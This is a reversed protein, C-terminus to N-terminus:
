FLDCRSDSFIGTSRHYHTTLMPFVVFFTSEHHSSSVLLHGLSIELEFNSFDAIDYYGLRWIAATPPFSM